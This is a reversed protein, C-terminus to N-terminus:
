RLDFRSKSTKQRRQQQNKVRETMKQQQFFHIITCQYVFYAYRQRQIYFKYKRPLGGGGWM